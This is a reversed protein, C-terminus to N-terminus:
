SYMADFTLWEHSTYRATLRNDIGESTDGADMVFRGSTGGIDAAILIM